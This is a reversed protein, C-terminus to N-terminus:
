YLRFTVEVNIMVAVPKGNLHAPEFRWRNVAEAAKEDLGMGLSHAVRINRPKGDAGVILALVVSGQTKVKRAEESYEPEPDYIVRPVGVGGYQATYVNGGYNGNEGPGVGPGTGPGVGTGNGQGIGSPGGPGNSSPGTVRSLPDGMQGLQPLALDPMVMVSPIEPLKPEPNLTHTTPATLQLDMSLRPVAEASASLKGREGGGGGGSGPFILPRSRDIKPLPDGLRNEVAYRVMWMVLLTALVHMLFSVFFNRPESRYLNGSEGLLSPFSLGSPASLESTV